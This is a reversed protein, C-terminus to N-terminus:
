KNTYIILFHFFSFPLILFIYTYFSFNKANIAQIHLFFPLNTTINFCVFIYSLTQYMMIINILHQVLTIDLTKVDLTNAHLSHNFDAQFTIYPTWNVRQCSGRVQSITIYTSICIRINIYYKSQLNKVTKKSGFM